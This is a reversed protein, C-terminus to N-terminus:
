ELHVQLANALLQALAPKNTVPDRGVISTEECLEIVRRHSAGVDYLCHAEDDFLYFNQESEKFQNPYVVIDTTLHAIQRFDEDLFYSAHCRDNPMVRRLNQILIKIPSVLTGAIGRARNQREVGQSHRRSVELRRPVEIAIVLGIISAAAQIPVWNIGGQLGCVFM